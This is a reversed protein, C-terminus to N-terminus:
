EQGDVFYLVSYELRAAPAPASAVLANWKDVFRFDYLCAPDTQKENDLLAELLCM